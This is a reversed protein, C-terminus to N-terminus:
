TSIVVALGCAPGIPVSVGTSPWSDLSGADAVSNMADRFSKTAASALDLTLTMNAFKVDTQGLTGIRAYLQMEGSASLFLRTEATSLEVTGSARAPGCYVLAHVAMTAVALRLKARRDLSTM